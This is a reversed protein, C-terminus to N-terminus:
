EPRQLSHPSPSKITAGTMIRDAWCSSRRSSLPWWALPYWVTARPIPFAAFFYGTWSVSSRRPRASEWLLRQSPPLPLRPNRRLGRLAYRTDQLVTNMWWGPRQQYYQERTREVGGFDVFARRRAEEPTMGATLNSQTAQEMHFQLEEDMERQSSRASFTQFIFFRLKALLEKIM